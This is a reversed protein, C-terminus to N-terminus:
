AAGECENCLFGDLAKLEDFNYISRVQVRNECSACTVVILRPAVDPMAFKAAFATFGEIPEWM